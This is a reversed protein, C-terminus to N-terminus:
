LPDARYAACQAAMRLAAITAGSRAVGKGAIAFATGHDPSTRILPLGLTVNVGQDFDLAKLPILAQDHYMCIALDYGRRAEAHFMGDPPLPGFADIGEAVLAAVAPAIIEAEESGFRGDEGAHPNLGAIALRPREIGFDRTLAAAAIAARSRILEANLLGPVEALGVHVTIPVVRLSPGALMMVANRETIGCAQAVYETQGPQSFGLRALWAKSVPATVLGSAAGSRVLGTATELSRLALGAGADDPEGPRYGTEGIDLVPLARAFHDAAEDPSGIVHVPVDLGRMAAAARLVEASGAVFFPPVASAGREAWAAALLEPGVGAPDGLSACLPLPATM